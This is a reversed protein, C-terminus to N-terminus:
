GAAGVPRGVLRDKLRVTWDPWRARSRWGGIAPSDLKSEDAFALLDRFAPLNRQWYLSELKTAVHGALAAEVHPPGVAALEAPHNEFFRRVIRHHARIQEVPSRSLQGAHIRYHTLYEPVFAFGGVASLRFYLDIDCAQRYGADYGGIRDLATKRVLVSPHCISHPELLAATCRGVRRAAGAMDLRTESGDPNHHVVGTHVLVTDPDAAAALQKELKTPEWWDDADTNAIWAGRAVAIGANRASPEGGNAKRVLRFRDGLGDAAREAAAASDDTSGDDVVILEWDAFTQRRVGAVAEGIYAAANYLPIVISVIPM